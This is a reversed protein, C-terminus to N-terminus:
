RRSFFYGASKASKRLIIWTERRKDAGDAPSFTDRQNRQNECFLGTVEASIQAKQPLFLIGSIESIKASNDL